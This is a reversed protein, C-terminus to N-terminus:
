RGRPFLAVTAQTLASAPDTFDLVVNFHHRGAIALPARLSAPHNRPWAHWLLASQRVFESTEDAGVAVVLPAETRPAQHVPSMRRAEAADLRLDVNYSTMLLPVLDHVGSLSVGGAFPAADLKWERWGTAFLMAVLHGGASHGAVVIPAPAGRQPGERALWATARRCQDVITAITVQPCLDYNVVAVAFGATVFAPAVFAHDAKDFSRWYGGHIFLLTGRAPTAPVFLDLTEKAGPGYRVDLAPRLAAIAAQSRVVFQDLWYPHEPVAARNNYGREAEDPTTPARATM